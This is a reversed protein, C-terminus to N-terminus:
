TLFHEKAFRATPIEKIRAFKREAAHYSKAGTARSKAYKEAARRRLPAQM